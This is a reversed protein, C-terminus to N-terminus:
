QQHKQSKEDSKKRHGNQRKNSHANLSQPEKISTFHYKNEPEAFPSVSKKYEIFLECQPIDYSLCKSHISFLFPLFM